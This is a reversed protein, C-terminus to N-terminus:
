KHNFTSVSDIYNIGGRLSLKFHVGNLLSLGGKM